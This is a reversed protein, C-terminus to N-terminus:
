FPLDNETPDILEDDRIKLSGGLRIVNASASRFGNHNGLKFYARAQWECRWLIEPGGLRFYAEFDDAAGQYNEGAMRREGRLWYTEHYAPFREIAADFSMIRERSLWDPWNLGFIMFSSQASESILTSLRGECAFSERYCDSAFRPHRFPTGDFISAAEVWINSKRTMCSSLNCITRFKFVIEDFSNKNDKRWDDENFRCHAGGGYKYERWAPYLEKTQKQVLLQCINGIEERLLAESKAAYASYNESSVQSNMALELWYEASAEQQIGQVSGLLSGARRLLAPTDARLAPLLPNVPEM